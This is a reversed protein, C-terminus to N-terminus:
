NKETCNVNVGNSGLDKKFGHVRGPVRPKARNRELGRIGSM